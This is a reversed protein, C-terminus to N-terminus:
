HKPASTTGTTAPQDKRQGPAVDNAQVGTKSNKQIQGPAAQQATGTTSHGPAFSSASNPNTNTGSNTQALAVGSAGLLFAAGLAATAITKM